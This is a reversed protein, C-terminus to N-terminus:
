TLSDVARGGEWSNQVLSTLSGAAGKEFENQGPFGPEWNSIKALKEVFKLQDSM